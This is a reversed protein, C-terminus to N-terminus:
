KMFEEIDEPKKIIDESLCICGEKSVLIDDEIRIGIGEDAIYLGPEVTFVMGETIVGEDGRGIDHTELGLFHSVKHWYYNKVDEKLSILGISKLAKAYYDILNENLRKFPIGPKILEQTLLNGELVINYLERQRDTFTGSIPFTRTIDGSYYGWAAGVDCLVLSGDSVSCNNSSYHLVAANKGGAIISAFAKDFVGKHKLEYDFYAELEYEYMGPKANKMMSYVGNKTIQIAKKINEVEFDTKVARLSAMFGSIDSIQPVPSNAIIKEAFDIAPSVNKPIQKDFDIYFKTITKQCIKDNIYKDFEDIFTFDKIGSINECERDTLYAGTWKATEPDPRKIFLRANPKEDCKSLLLILGPESLGTLYYFNRNPTFPYFEDGVKHASNGCFFVAAENNNIFDFIKNRNNIVFNKM